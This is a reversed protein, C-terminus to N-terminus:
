DSINVTYKDASDGKDERYYVEVIQNDNFYSIGQLSDAIGGIINMADARGKVRNYVIKVKVKGELPKQFHQTAMARLANRYKLQNERESSDAYDQKYPPKEMVTFEVEMVVLM